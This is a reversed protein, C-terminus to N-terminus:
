KNPENPIPFIRLIKGELASYLLNIRRDLEIFDKEFQNPVKARYASELQSISELDQIIYILRDVSKLTRRLYKKNVKKDYIAGDILTEVYGQINFIPTKLEHSVNGFFERRYKETTKLTQIDQEKKFRMSPFYRHIYVFYLFASILNVIFVIGLLLFVKDQQIIIINSLLFFIVFLILTALCSYVVSKLLNNIM